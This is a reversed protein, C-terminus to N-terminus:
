LINSTLCQFILSIHLLLLHSALFSKWLVYSRITSLLVPLLCIPQSFECVCNDIRIVHEVSASSNTIKIFQMEYPRGWWIKLNENIHCLTNTHLSLLEINGDWKKNLIFGAYIPSDTSYFVHILRCELM